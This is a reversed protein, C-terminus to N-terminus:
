WHGGTTPRQLGGGDGVCGQLSHLYEKLKLPKSIVVADARKFQEDVTVPLAHVNLGAQHECSPEM